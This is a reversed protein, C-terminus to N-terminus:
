DSVLTILQNRAKHDENTVEWPVLLRADSLCELHFLTESLSKM